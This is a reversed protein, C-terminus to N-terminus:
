RRTVFEELTEKTAALYEVPFRKRTGTLSKWLGLFGGPHTTLRMAGTQHTFESQFFAQEWLSIAAIGVDDPSRMSGQCTWGPEGDVNWYPATMLKTKAEPRRNEALARVGLDSGSV